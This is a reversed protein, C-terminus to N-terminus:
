SAVGEALYLAHWEACGSCLVRGTRATLLEAHHGDRHFGPCYRGLISLHAAVLPSPHNSM